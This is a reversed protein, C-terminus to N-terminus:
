HRSKAVAPHNTTLGDFGIENCHAMECPSNVTFTYAIKSVEREIQTDNLSPSYRLDFGDLHRIRSSLDAPIRDILWLAPRHPFRSKTATITAHDFAIFTVPATSLASPLREVLAAGEKLELVAFRNAPITDLIEALHPVDPALGRLTDFSLDALSDPHGMTRRLTPDHLAVIKGNATLRLDCEIADAGQRWALDFARLTNEPADASAGRHAITLM